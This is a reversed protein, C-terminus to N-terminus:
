IMRQKSTEPETARLSVSDCLQDQLSDDGRINDLDLVEIGSVTSGTAEAGSAGLSRSAATRCVRVVYWERGM